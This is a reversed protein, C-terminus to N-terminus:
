SKKSAIEVRKEIFTRLLKMYFESIGQVKNQEDSGIPFIFYKNLGVAKISGFKYHLRKNATEMESLTEEPYHKLITQRTIVSVGQSRILLMTGFEFMKRSIFNKIKKM